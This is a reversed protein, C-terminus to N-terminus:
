IQSGRGGSRFTQWPGTRFGHGPRHHLARAGVLVRGEARRAAVRHEPQHRGERRDQVVLDVVRDALVNEAGGNLKRLVRVQPVEQLLEDEGVDHVAGCLVMLNTAQEGREDALGTRGLPTTPRARVCRTRTTLSPAAVARPRPRMPHPYVRGYWLGRVQM